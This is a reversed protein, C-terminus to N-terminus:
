TGSYKRYVMVAAKLEQRLKAICFNDHAEITNIYECKYCKYLGQDLLLATACLACHAVTNHPAELLVASLIVHEDLM